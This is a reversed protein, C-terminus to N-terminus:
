TNGGELEIEEVKAVSNPRLITGEGQSTAVFLDFTEDGPSFRTM